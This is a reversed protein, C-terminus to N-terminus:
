LADYLAALLRGARSDTDEPCLENITFSFGLEADPWAGHRGGGAGSHGFAVEAPGYTGIPDALEYGLGFRLPRDNVADTGQSWTATAEALTGPSVLEGAVLSDYLRAMGPAGGVGSGAALEARRYRPSNVTDDSTLMTGYMRDVIARREPDDRLYTSIRYDPSRILRAVRPDVEPPTGLYLDLDYPTSLLERVLSGVSKGSARRVVESLLYGYTMAHYAVREGPTWLPAQEALVAANAASDLRPFEGPPEPDVYPLGVTHSLLHHVRVDAK